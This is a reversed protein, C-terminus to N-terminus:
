IKGLSKLFKYTIVAADKDTKLKQIITNIIEDYDNLHSFQFLEAIEVNLVKSLKVINEPKPFSLGNEIRSYNEPKIEILEAVTEQTLMKATRLERLRKGFMKKMNINFGMDEKKNFRYCLSFNVYQM